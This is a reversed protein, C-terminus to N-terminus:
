QRSAPMGTSREDRSRWGSPTCAKGGSRAFRRWVSVALGAVVLGAAAILLTQGTLIAVGAGALALLLLHGGCCIALAAAVGLGASIDTKNM